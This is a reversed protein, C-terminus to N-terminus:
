HICELHIVPLTIGICIIAHWHKLECLVLPTVNEMQVKASDVEDEEDLDILL